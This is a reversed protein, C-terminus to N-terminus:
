YVSAPPRGLRALPTSAVPVLVPGLAWGPLVFLLAVALTVQLASLLAAVADM